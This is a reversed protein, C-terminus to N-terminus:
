DDVRDLLTDTIINLIDLIEDPDHERYDQLFNEVTYISMGQWGM